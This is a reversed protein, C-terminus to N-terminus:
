SNNFIITKISKPGLTLKVGNQSNKKKLVVDYSKGPSRNHAVVVLRTGNVIFGVAEFANEDVSQTMQIRYSEPPIFKSFHGMIYYMPQKYFVKKEADVIIPADVFNGVWNPGGQEDLFINWDTWGTVFHLLNQIIDHAYFNAHSWSGLLPIHGDVQYANCAETALIFKDPRLKHTLRLPDFDSQSYWHVALGDVEHEVHAAKDYIAKAADFISDRQHDHAMIKLNATANNRNFMPRLRKNVFDRQDESSLYMNQFPYNPDTAFGPENQVTMGWFKIGESFYHEFFKILYKAYALYYVGNLDGKLRGGGKMRGSQKMWGPASWPSAFLQLDPNLKLIQKLIDPKSDQSTNFHRQQYDEEVESYSWESESFDCSGIPVRGLSYGISDNGYYQELLNLGLVGAKAYVSAVADTIAGGFGIIKQLRESSPDLELVVTTNKVDHVNEFNLVTRTLRDGEASTTYVVAKNLAVEGLPEVTDCSLNDCVCAFSDQDFLAKKCPTSHVTYLSVFLILRNLSSM